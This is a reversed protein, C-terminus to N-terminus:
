LGGVTSNALNDIAQPKDFLWFATWALYYTGQAYIVASMGLALRLRLSASVLSMDVGARRALHDKAASALSGVAVGIVMRLLLEGPGYPQVVLFAVVAGLLLSLSQALETAFVSLALAQQEVRLGALYLVLQEPSSFRRKDKPQRAIEKQAFHVGLLWPASELLAESVISLLFAADTGVQFLAIFSQLSVALKGTMVFLLTFRQVQEGDYGCAAAIPAAAPLVAVQVFVATAIPQVVGFLAVQLAPTTVVLPLGTWVCGWAATLVALATMLLAGLLAARASVPPSPPALARGSWRSAFRRRAAVVALWYAAIAAPVVWFVHNLLPSIHASFLLAGLFPLAGLVALAFGFLEWRGTAFQHMAAWSLSTWLGFMGLLGATVDKRPKYSPIVVRECLYVDAIFIPAALVTLAVLLAVRRAEDALDQACQAGRRQAEAEAGAELITVSLSPALANPRARQAEGTGAGAKRGQEQQAHREQAERPEEAEAGDGGEGGGVCESDDKVAAVASMASM